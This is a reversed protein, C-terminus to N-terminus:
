AILQDDEDCAENFYDHQDLLCINMPAVGLDSHSYASAFSHPDTYYAHVIDSVPIGCFATM